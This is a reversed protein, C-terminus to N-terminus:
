QKEGSYPNIKYQHFEKDTMDLPGLVNDAIYECQEDFEDETVRFIKEGNHLVAFERDSM